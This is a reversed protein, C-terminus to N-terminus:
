KMMCMNNLLLDSLMAKECMTAMYTAASICVQALQPSMPQQELNGVAVLRPDPPVISSEKLRSILHSILFSRTTLIIAFYYICSVHINGIAIERVASISEDEDFSLQRFDRPLGHIWQRLRQLFGEATPIDFNNGVKKLHQVIEELLVSGNYAASVAVSHSPSDNGWPSCNCDFPVSGAPRGLLFSVV